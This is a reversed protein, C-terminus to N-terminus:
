KVAKIDAGAFAGDIADLNVNEFLKDLEKHWQLLNEVIAKSYIHVPDIQVNKFGTKELMRKFKDIELTALCGAWMEAMKRIEAPIERLTVIDAIALRGGKKLVRYAESFAKEKDGSLNIVCNSMIVDVSEDPLPIDELYGKLFEVNDAGMLKKNQNALALMEETMDLGFVKGQPGVYKSAALVDLGGGSGLDLVTEGDKLQALALPNACGLSSSVAEEPLGTLNGADYLLEPNPLRHVAAIVVM